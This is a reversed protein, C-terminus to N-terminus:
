LLESSTIAKKVNLFTMVAEPSKNKVKAWEAHKLFFYGGSEPPCEDVFVFKGYYFLIM